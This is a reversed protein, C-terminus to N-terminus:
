YSALSRLLLQLSFVKAKERKSASSHAGQAGAHTKPVHKMVHPPDSNMGPTAGSTGSGRPLPPRHWSCRTLQPRRYPAASRHSPCRKSALQITLMSSPAPGTQFRAGGANRCCRLLPEPPDAHGPALRRRSAPPRQPRPGSAAGPTFHPQHGPHATM